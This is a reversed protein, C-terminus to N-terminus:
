LISHTVMYICVISDTDEVPAALARLKQAM